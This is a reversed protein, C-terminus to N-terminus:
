VGTVTGSLTTGDVAIARIHYVFWSLIVLPSPCSLFPLLIHTVELSALTEAENWDFKQSIVCQYCDCILYDYQLTSLWQPACVLKSTQGRSLSTPTPQPTRRSSAKLPLFFNYVLYGSFAGLNHNLEEPVVAAESRGPNSTSPWSESCDM